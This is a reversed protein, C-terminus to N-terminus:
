DKRKAIVLLSDGEEFEAYDEIHLIKFYPEFFNRLDDETHYNVFMSNFEESGEGKWYSHCIVGQGNLIAHQRGLSQSLEKDTLHHMVKNAYIADFTKDTQLSTADLHLFTGSPYTKHLHELFVTSNDSGVVDFNTSLIQWDTGPGSGLELLTSQLNLYPKFKEILKISNVDKALKIYQNVSEKNQYYSTSM